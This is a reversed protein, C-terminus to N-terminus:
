GSKLAVETYNYGDVVALIQKARAVYSTPESQSRSIRELWNREEETLTRLPDKKQRSM